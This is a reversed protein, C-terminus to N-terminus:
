SALKLVHVIVEDVSHNNLLQKISDNDIVATFLLKANERMKTAYDPCTSYDAPSQGGQFFISELNKEVLISFLICVNSFSRM